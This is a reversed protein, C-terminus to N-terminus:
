CPAEGTIGLLSRKSVVHGEAFSLLASEQSPLRSLRVVDFDDGQRDLVFNLTENPALSYSLDIDAWDPKLLRSHNFALADPGIRDVALRGHDSVIKALAIDSFTL